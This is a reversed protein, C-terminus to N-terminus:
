RSLKAKTGEIATSKEWIDAHNPEEEVESRQHLTQKPM